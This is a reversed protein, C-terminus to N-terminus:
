QSIWLREIFWEQSSLTSKRLLIFSSFTASAKCVTHYLATIPGTMHQVITAPQILLATIPASIMHGSLQACEAHLYVCNGTLLKKNQKQSVSLTSFSCLSRQSFLILFAFRVCVRILFVHKGLSLDIPVSSLHCFLYKFIIIINVERLDHIHYM